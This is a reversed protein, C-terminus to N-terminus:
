SPRIGLGLILANAARGVVHIALLDGCPGRGEPVIDPRPGRYITTTPQDRGFPRLTENM